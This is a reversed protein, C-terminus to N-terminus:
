HLDEDQDDTVMSLAHKLAQAAEEPTMNATCVTMAMDGDEDPSMFVCVGFAKDAEIENIAQRITAIQQTKEISSM